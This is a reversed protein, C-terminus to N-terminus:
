LDESQEKIKKKMGRSYREAQEQSWIKYDNIDKRKRIKDTVLEDMMCCFNFLGILVVSALVVAFYQKISMELYDSGIFLSPLAVICVGITYYSATAVTRKIYKKTLGM